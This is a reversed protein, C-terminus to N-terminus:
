PTITERLMTMDAKLQQRLENFAHVKSCAQASILLGVAMAAPLLPVVFLAWAAPMQLVPIVAWLMLAVGALVATIVLCALAAAHLMMRRKWSATAEAVESPILEAYLEVHDALLQPQTALLQLLPHM